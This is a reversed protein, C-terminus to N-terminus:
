PETLPSQLKGVPDLNAGGNFSIIVHALSEDGAVSGPAEYM